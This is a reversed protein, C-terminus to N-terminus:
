APERTGPGATAELLELTALLAGAGPNGLAQSVASQTVGETGAISRQTGGGLLGFAYRRTRPHLSTLLQDRSLLYANTLATGGPDGGSDHFWTRLAPNRAKERQRAEDIAARAAWWGPGDQISAASVSPVHRIVGRGIGFRCDVDEPLGLRLMATACLAQNLTAYVAQFEDGVTAQWGQLAPWRRGVAACASEIAAQALDRDALRRSDVIDMIVPFVPDSSGM